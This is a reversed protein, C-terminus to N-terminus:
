RYLGLGAGNDFVAKPKYHMGDRPGRLCLSSARMLAVSLRANVFGCVQSYERRWKSSLHSALRKCAAKCETSRMGDVSFVLPTFDRREDRCRQEYTKKKDNEHRDLIKQATSSLYSPQDPDVVRVDFICTTARQWFGKVGVDGRLAPLTGTGATAGTTATATTRGTHIYPEGSVATRGFARRNLDSWESCVDDHRATIHGGKKCSLGHAVTFPSNCGDCHSPLNLPQYAFRLNIGDRFETASLATGNLATPMASLWSGTESSRQLRRATVRETPELQAVLEALYAEEAEKKATRQKKKRDATHAQHDAVLLEENLRLSRALVTSSSASTRYNGDAATAPNPLGLGGHRVSSQFLRRKSALAAESQGFVAPLFQQQIADEVPQFQPGVERTVRTVYTWESQLSKSLGAFATQPFRTAVKALKQVGHVWTDIMPALWADRAEDTGVFGGLYRHGDVYRFDFEGLVAKAKAQDEPRCIVISKSPEPFYGRKPGLINLQRMSARVATATGLMAADDAYWPQVVTPADARLTQAMPTLAAGYLLMSLPDGQVVGERSYLLEAPQQDRRVVLTSWHRYCNFAFRASSPWQHRATWLMAKRGLENFGNRADVLLLLKVDDEPPIIGLTDDDQTAPPDVDMTPTTPPPPPPPPYVERGDLEHQIAHVAGEIGAPLGACLNHNGCAATIEAGCASIVLKALFRRIIEGIGVPRTGPQKDLAMTRNCMLARIAAWPPSHNSLWHAYAVMETRLGNSADGFRLLWNALDVSDTGSNGGAGSIRSAMKEVMENTFTLPIVDPVTPYPEFAGDGLDAEPPDRLPPHKDRLVELVPKHAKACIDDPSLVGGGDRQTLARVGQRLRGGLVKANFARAEQEETRKAGNSRRQRLELELDSLLTAYKGEEWLKLRQAVRRKIDTARRVGQTTVLIVKPFILPRESNWKRTRVGKMEATLMVVFQRGVPGNPVDYTKASLQAMRLWRQQWLLDDSVGGDLHHGANDHVYDGYVEKLLLDAPTPVYGELDDSMAM